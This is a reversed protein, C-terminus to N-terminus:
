VKSEHIWAHLARSSRSNPAAICLWGVALRVGHTDPFGATASRHALAAAAAAALFSSLLHSSTSLPSAADSTASSLARALLSLARM